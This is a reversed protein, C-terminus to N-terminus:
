GSSPMKLYKIPDSGPNVLAGDHREMYLFGVIGKEIFREHLRLTWSRRVQRYKYCRWKGFAVPIKSPQPPDFDHNIWYPYENLTDRKRLQESLQRIPRDQADTELKLDKLILSSVMYGTSPHRWYVPDVSHELEVLDKWGVENPKKAVAGQKAGLKKHLVGKPSGVGQGRTLALNKRRGSRTGFREFLYAEFDMPAMDQIFQFSVKVIRSSCTHSGLIVVGSKPEAGAEHDDGEGIYEGMNATDDEVPYPIPRGTNTMRREIPAELMGGMAKEAVTLPARAEEPVLYGLGVDDSVSIMSLVEPAEAKLVQKLADTSLHHGEFRQLAIQQSTTLAGAGFRLADLYAARYEADGVEADPEGPTPDRGSPWADDDLQHYARTGASQDLEQSLERYRLECARTRQLKETRALESDLESEMAEIEAGLKEVDEDIKWFREHDEASLEGTQPDKRTLIEALQEGLAKRKKRKAQIDAVTHAM